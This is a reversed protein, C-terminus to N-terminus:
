LRMTVEFRVHHRRQVALQSSEVGDLEAARPISSEQFKLEECELIGIIDEELSRQGKM